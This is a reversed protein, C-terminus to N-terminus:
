EETLRGGALRYRRPFREALENNHTVMVVIARREAATRLFLEAITLGTDRDLNGTPEDGLLLGPRNFLARAIAVRQREGGSLRAPFADAREKVGVSDLLADAAQAAADNPVASRGRALNPLLVNERATLQPLLYHDQFVFGVQHARYAALGDGSLSAVDCGNVLIRGESAKDLAGLLHLLTSKGSGSPGVIALADGPAASFSVGNLVPGIGPWRKVLGEVTVGSDYATRNPADANDAEETM